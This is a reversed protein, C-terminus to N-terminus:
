QLDVLEDSKRADYKETPEPQYSYDDTSDLYDDSEIGDEFEMNLNGDDNWEEASIGDIQGLEEESNDNNRKRDIYAKAGIGVGAAATLGAAIPIVTSGVGSSSSNITESSTPIKTYNNSNKIVDDISSTISDSSNTLVDSNASDLESTTPTTQAPESYSETYSEGKYGNDTYGGGSHWGTNNNSSTVTNNSSPAVTNNPTEVSPTQVPSEAPTSNTNGSPVTTNPTSNTNETPATTNPKTNTDKGITSSDGAIEAKNNPAQNNAGSTPKATGDVNPKTNQPTGVTDSVKKATIQTNNTGETSTGQSDQRFQYTSNSGSSNNNSDSNNNNEKTGNSSNGSNDESKQHDNKENTNENDKTTDDDKLITTANKTTPTVPTNYTANNEVLSPSETMKRFQSKAQQNKIQSYTNVADAAVMTIGPYQNATNVVAQVPKSNFVAKGVTAAKNTVTGAAKSVMQGAKSNSVAQGATAVKNKVTGAAKSVVQGAKSNSVAQGATAVKNKVADATKSATQGVRSNSVTATAKEAKDMTRYVKNEIKNEVKNVGKKFVQGAKTKATGIKSGIKSGIGSSKTAAGVADDASNIMSSALDDASGPLAKQSMTAGPLSPQPKGATAKAPLGLVDDANAVAKTAAIKDAMAGAVFTTAANVAGQKVGGFFASNYDKGAQLNTETGHGIGSVGAVATTAITSTSVTTGALAVGGAGATAITAAVYPVAVGIGKFINAATSDSSFTSYKNIWTGEGNVNEAFFDGVWDKKIFEGCSDQFDSSFLGGVFGVISAGGDVIGEFVSGIGEGIKTVGMGVTGWLKDWWSANNYEEIENAKARIQDSMKDIYGIADKPYGLITSFDVQIFEAGRSNQIVKIGKEIDGETNKLANCATSLEDIATSVKGADYTYRGM